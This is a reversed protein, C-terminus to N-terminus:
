KVEENYRPCGSYHPHIRFATEVVTKYDVKFLYDWEDKPYEMIIQDKKYAWREEIELHLPCDACPNPLDDPRPCGEIEEKKM